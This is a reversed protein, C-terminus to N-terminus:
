RGIVGELGLEGLDGTTNPCSAAANWPAGSSRLTGRHGSVEAQGRSGISIAQPLIYRGRSPTPESRSRTRPCSSSNVVVSAARTVPELTCASAPGVLDARNRCASSLDIKRRRLVLSSDLLEDTPLQFLSCGLRTCTTRCATRRVARWGRRVKAAPVPRDGEPHQDGSRPRFAISSM